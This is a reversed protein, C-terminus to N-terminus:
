LNKILCGVQTLALVMATRGGMSHGMITAEQIQLKDMLQIVDAALEPYTHSSEHPSEGHNRLDVAVVMTGTQEALKKSISEWNRKSGLLGHLVLLPATTSQSGHIKHALDVASRTNPIIRKSSLIRKLITQSRVACLIEM